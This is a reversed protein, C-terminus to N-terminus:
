FVGNLIVIDSGIVLGWVVSGVALVVVGAVSLLLTNQEVRNAESGGPAAQPVRSSRTTASSPSSEM